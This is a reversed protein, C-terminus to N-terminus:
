MVAAMMGKFVWKKFMFNWPVYVKRQLQPRALISCWPLGGNQPPCGYRFDLVTYPRDFNWFLRGGVELNEGSGGEAGTRVAFDGIDQAHKTVRRGRQDVIDGRYFEWMRWVESHGEYPSPLLERRRKTGKRRKNRRSTPSLSPLERPLCSSGMGEPESRGFFAHHSGLSATGSEEDRREGVSEPGSPMKSGGDSQRRAIEGEENSKAGDGQKGIELRTVNVRQCDFWELETMGASLWWHGELIRPHFGPAPKPQDCKGKNPLHLMGGDERSSIPTDFCEDLCTTLSFFKQRDYPFCCPVWNTLNFILDNAGSSGAAMSQKACALANRCDPDTLCKLLVDGCHLVPSIRCLIKSRKLALGLLVFFAALASPDSQRWHM